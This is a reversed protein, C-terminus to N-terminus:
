LVTTYLTRIRRARSKNGHAGERRQQQEAHMSRTWPARGAQRSDARGLRPHGTASTAQASNTRKAGFAASNILDGNSSRDQFSQGSARCIMNGGADIHCPGRGASSCFQPLNDRGARTTAASPLLQRTATAVPTMLRNEQGRQQSSVRNGVDFSPPRPFPLTALCSRLHITGFRPAQVM